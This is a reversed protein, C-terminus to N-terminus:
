KHPKVTIIYCTSHLNTNITINDVGAADPVVNRFKSSDLDGRRCKKNM